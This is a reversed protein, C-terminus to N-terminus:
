TLIVPRLWGIVWGIQEQYIVKLVFPEPEEIFMVIAEHPVYGHIEKHHMARNAYLPMAPNKDRNEYGAQVWLFHYLKGKKFQSNKRKVKFQAM